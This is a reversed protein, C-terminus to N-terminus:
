KRLRFLQCAAQNQITVFSLGQSEQQNVVLDEWGTAPDLGARGQLTFFGAPAPWSLVVSGGEQVFSLVPAEVQPQVPLLPGSPADAILISATAGPGGGAMVLITNNSGPDMSAGIDVAVAQGDALAGLNYTWGNVLLKVSRFGPTGNALVVYHEASPVGSFTQWLSVGAQAILKAIVPDFSTALNCGDTVMANVTAAGPNIGPNRTAVIALNTTGNPLDVTEGLGISGIPTGGPFPFAAGYATGKMTCNDLTVGQVTILGYVNTFNLQAQSGIITYGKTTDGFQCVHASTFVLNVSDGAQAVSFTGGGTLNEFGTTDITFAAPDFGSIGGSATAITWVYSMGDNFDWVLGATDDL